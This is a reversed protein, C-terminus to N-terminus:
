HRSSAYFDKGCVRERLAAKNDTGFWFAMCRQPETKAIPCVQPPPPPKGADYWQQMKMGFCLCVIILAALALTSSRSM